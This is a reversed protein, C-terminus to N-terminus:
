RAAPSGSWGRLIRRIQWRGRRRSADENHHAGIDTATAGAPLAGTLRVGVVQPILLNIPQGLMAAEAEIGGVGGVSCAWVMSWRRTAIRGLWPIPIRVVGDKEFAVRALYEINVQHVIGTSPPVVKFNAYARQAWRLLMYREGNRVYERSVNRVLADTTGFHDVQVSHDVVLESPFLPNIRNRDGGLEAIADRMAALDVVAPVGTFDQLVVRAPYFAIESDPERTAQWGALAEIDKATVAKGDENRLLNELLIRLSVPLRSVDFKSKEAFAPLSFYDLTRGGVSLLVAVHM